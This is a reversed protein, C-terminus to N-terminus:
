SALNDILVVPLNQDTEEIMLDINNTSQIPVRLLALTQMQGNYFRYFSKNDPDIVVLHVWENQFWEFTENHSQITKLVVDPYQEVIILLRIPDHIEVMQLPLGTRLDGDLGNAVGVLGMVNHPLKSGAGLKNNDVRSFYYELNIGGCVPAAAKLINLLYKGDKDKSYDYSNMFARRDLFLNKTLSRRGVICLSNTAHNLEPRPEFLSVSRLKVAEHVKEASTNTNTLVFRRSREKANLDLAKLFVLKNIKHNGLQNETLLNEDYFEIEDRTTDHMAGIFIVSDPIFIGRKVLLSRVESNNAMYAIVRANVSGPRGSCAGCDYGAYHTNNISSAGHGVMYILNSTFKDVGTSKLLGEVRDAMETTTFGIQLGDIAKDGKNHAITLEGHKDMHRFSYSTAPSISPKFVSIFLKIASWFGLTQAVLWGTILAHSYKGFHADRKTKEINGVEKIIYEPNLPAPCVKTYFESNQPQFYFEVNFFGPTGFTLAKTDLQEIYRRYSCERDDICFFAYFSNAETENMEVHNQAIGNLVQNYYSWEYAEQWIPYLEFLETKNATKFIQMQSKKIQLGLPKWNEGLQNDLADIEFLLEVLIFDRLSLKRSDLLANPNQEITAVMGSWGPHAFQQDFLYQEYYAPKGVLINLLDTLELNPNQLLDKARQTKFLSYFSTNDLERVAGLFGKNIVPFSRIAIGQDTFNAILRFLPAHVTKDLNIKYSSKWKSRLRGIRPHLSEDYATKILKELWNNSTDTLGKQDLVWLLVDKKIEGIRYKERYEDLSLYVKYGFTTSAERLGEDFNLSQFAHLTNHHVFDKLPRQSPLYHVLNHLVAHEDFVLNTNQM